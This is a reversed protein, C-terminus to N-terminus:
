LDQAPIFDGGFGRNLLVGAIRRRQAAMDSWDYSDTVIGGTVCEANTITFVGCDYGNHQETSRTDLVRWEEEKWGSGLEAALWAMTNKIFVKNSGAFSDLYEITRDKPSVVIITWHSANNVPILVTDVELLKKGEARKKKMWRSVSSPGKTAINKYFFSNQAVVKPIANRGNKGAKENAYEVIWELYANIIEDNLWEREGLVTMFDRRKLETGSVTTTLPVHEGKRMAANIKSEWEDSLPQVLKQKPLRRSSRAKREEEEAEAKAKAAAAEEEAKKAAREAERQKRTRAIKQEMTASMKLESMALELFIDGPSAPKQSSAPPTEQKPSDGLSSGSGSVPEEAVTPKMENIDELSQQSSGAENNQISECTDSPEYEETVPEFNMVETSTSAGGGRIPSTVDLTFLERPSPPSNHQMEAPQPSADPMEFSTDIAEQVPPFLGNEQTPSPSMTFVLQRVTGKWLEKMRMCPGIKTEPTKPVALPTPPHDNQDTPIGDATAVHGATLVSQISQINQISSSVDQLLKPHQPEVTHRTDPSFSEEGKPTVSSPHIKIEPLIPTSPPPSWIEQALLSDLHGDLGAMSNLAQEEAWPSSPAWDGVISERYFKVSTEQPLGNSPNIAFRVRRPMHSATISEKLMDETDYPLSLPQSRRDQRDRINEHRKPARQSRQHDFTHRSPLSSRNTARRKARKSLLEQLRNTPVSGEDERVIVVHESSKTIALEEDKQVSIVLGETSSASSLKTDTASVSPSPLETKEPKTIIPRVGPLPPPTWSALIRAAIAERDIPPQSARKQPAQSYILPTSTPVQPLPGPPQPISTQTEPLHSSVQLDPTDDALMEDSSTM